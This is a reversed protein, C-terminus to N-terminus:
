HRAQQRIERLDAVNRRLFDQRLLIRIPDISQGADIIADYGTCRCLNGTLYNCGKTPQEKREMMATTSMIFGPTCFWILRTVVLSPQNFLIWNVLPRVCRRNCMHVMAFLRLSALTSRNLSSMWVTLPLIGRFSQVHM